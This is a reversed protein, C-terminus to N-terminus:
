EVQLAQELLQALHNLIATDSVVLSAGAKMAKEKLDATDDSGFAIVPIHHTGQAQKMRAIADPVDNKTSAVDALVIMPKEREACAPLLSADMVARVRYKLDQLRNVLQTGPLLKEYVVLAMPQTMHVLISRAHRFHLGPPQWIKAALFRDRRIHQM